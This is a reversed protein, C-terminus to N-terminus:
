SRQWRGARDGIAVHEIDSAGNAVNFSTHQGRESSGVRTMKGEIDSAGNAGNGIQQLLFRDLQGSRVKWKALVHIPRVSM